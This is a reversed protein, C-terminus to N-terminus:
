LQTHDVGGGVGWPPVVSVNTERYLKDLPDEETARQGRRSM